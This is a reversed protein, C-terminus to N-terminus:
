ARPALPPPPPPTPPPPYVGAPALRFRLAIPLAVSVGGRPIAAVVCPPELAPAPAEARGEGAERRARSAVAGGLTRGTVSRWAGGATASLCARPRARPAHFRPFRRPRRAGPRAVGGWTPCWRSTVIRTMDVTYSKDTEPPRGGGAPGSAM